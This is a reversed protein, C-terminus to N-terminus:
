PYLILEKTLCKNQRSKSIEHKQLNFCFKNEGIFKRGHATRGRKRGLWFRKRCSPWHGVWTALWGLTLQWPSWSTRPFYLFVKEFCTHSIFVKLQTVLSEPKNFWFALSIFNINLLCGWILFCYKQFLLTYNSILYM